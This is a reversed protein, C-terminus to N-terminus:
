FLVVSINECFKISSVVLSINTIFVFWDFRNQYFKWKNRHCVISMINFLIRVLLVRYILVIQVRYSYTRFKYQSKHCRERSRSKFWIKGIYPFRVITQNIWWLIMERFIYRQFVAISGFLFDNEKESLTVHELSLDKEYSMENLSVLLYNFSRWGATSTIAM